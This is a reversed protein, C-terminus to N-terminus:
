MANIKPLDDFRESRGMAVSGVNLTCDLCAPVALSRGSKSMFGSQVHFMGYIPREPLLKAFGSESM